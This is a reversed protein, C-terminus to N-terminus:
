RDLTHKRSVDVIAVDTLLNRGVRLPYAMDTRDSLGVEVRARYDGLTLWMLVVYNKGEGNRAAARRRLRTEMEQEEGTEPDVLTYLVFRKGDKEVTRINGARITTLDTATDIMAELRLGPPEIVVYEVTGIVPLDLEGATATRPGEPGPQSPATQLVIREIVEPEPCQPVECVPCPVPERIVPCNSSDVVM